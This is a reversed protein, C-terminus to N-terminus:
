NGGELTPQNCAACYRWPENHVCRPVPVVDSRRRRTPREIRLPRRIETAIAEVHTVWRRKARSCGRTFAKGGCARYELARGLDGRVRPIERLIKRIERIGVAIGARVDRRWVQCSSRPEDMDRPSVQMVGCLPGAHSDFRSEAWAIALLLPADLGTIGATDELELAADIASDMEEPRADGLEHVARRIGASRIDAAAPGATLLLSLAVARM